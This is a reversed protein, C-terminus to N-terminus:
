ATGFPAPHACLLQEGKMRIYLKTDLSATELFECAKLQMRPPIKGLHGMYAYIAFTNARKVRRAHDASMCRVRRCCASIINKNRYGVCVCVSPSLGNPPWLFYRISAGGAWHRPCEVAILFSSYLYISLSLTPFIHSLFFLARLAVCFRWHWPDLWRIKHDM